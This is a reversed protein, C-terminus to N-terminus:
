SFFPPRIQPISSRYQQVLVLRVRGSKAYAQPADSWIRYILDHAGGAAYNHLVPVEFLQKTQM